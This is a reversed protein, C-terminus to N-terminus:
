GAARPAPPSLPPPVAACAPAPASPDLAKRVIGVVVPDYPMRMAGTHDTACVDQLTIERVAAGKVPTLRAQSAFANGGTGATGAAGNGAANGTPNSVANGTTIGRVGTLADDKSRITMYEVGPVTRMADAGLGPGPFSDTTRFGLSHFLGSVPGLPSQRGRDDPAINILERVKNRGPTQAGAHQIYYRVSAGGGMGNGVVDVQDSGSERLITDIYEGLNGALTPVMQTEQQAAYEPNQFNFSYVCYGDRDLAVSLRSWTSYPSEYGGNVLLVPRPRRPTTRCTVDDAGEPARDLGLLSNILKFPIRDSDDAGAPGATLVSSAAITGCLLALPLRM